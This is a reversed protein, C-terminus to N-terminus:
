FKAANPWVSNDRHLNLILVAVETNEPINFKGFKFRQDCQRIIVPVSSHIWLSEKIVCEIYKMQKLKEVCSLDRKEISKVAEYVKQQVNEHRGIPYLTSALAASVTDYGEFMFTNVEDLIEPKDINGELYEDLLIDLFVRSDQKEDSCPRYKIRKEIVHSIFSNITRLNKYYMKGDKSFTSYILPSWFWLKGYRQAIKETLNYVLEVYNSEESDHININNLCDM